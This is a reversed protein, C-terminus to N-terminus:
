KVSSRWKSVNAYTITFGSIINFHIAFSFDRVIHPLSNTVQKLYYWCKGPQFAIALLSRGLNLGLVMPASNVWVCNIGYAHREILPLDTQQVVSLADFNDALQQFNNSNPSMIINTTMEGTLDNRYIICSILSNCVWVPLQCYPVATRNGKHHRIATPSMELRRYIYLFCNMRTTKTGFLRSIPKTVTKPVLLSPKKLLPGLISFVYM